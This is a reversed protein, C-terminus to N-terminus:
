TSFKWESTETSIVAGVKQAEKTRLPLPLSFPLTRLIDKCVKALLTKIYAVGVPKEPRCIHSGLLRCSTVAEEICGSMELWSLLINRSIFMQIRYKMPELHQQM